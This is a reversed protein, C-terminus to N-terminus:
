PRKATLSLLKIQCDQWRDRPAQMAQWTTAALMPDPDDAQLALRYADVASQYADTASALDARARRIERHRRFFAGIEQFTLTIQFGGERAERSGIREIRIYPLIRM